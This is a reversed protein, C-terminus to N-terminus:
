GSKGGRLSPWAQPNILCIFCKALVKQIVLCVKQIVDGTMSKGISFQSTVYCLSGPTALKMIAISVQKEPTLSPQLIHPALHIVIDMLTVQHM